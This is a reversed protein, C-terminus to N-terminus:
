KRDYCNKGQRGLKMARYLSPIYRINYAFKHSNNNL